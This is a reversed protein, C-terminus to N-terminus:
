VSIVPLALTVRYVASVTALPDCMTKGAVWKCVMGAEVGWGCLM